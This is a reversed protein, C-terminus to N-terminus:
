KKAISYEFAFNVGSPPTRLVDSLALIKLVDENNYRAWSASPLKKNKQEGSIIPAKFYESFLFSVCLYKSKSYESTVREVKNFPCPQREQQQCSSASSFTRNSSDLTGLETSRRESSVRWLLLRFIFCIASWLHCSMVSTFHLKGNKWRRGLDKGSISSRIQVTQLQPPLKIKWETRKVSMNEKLM